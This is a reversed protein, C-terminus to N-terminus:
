AAPALGGRTLDVPIWAGDLLLLNFLHPAEEPDQSLGSGRECRLELGALRGVLCFADALGSDNARGYLLAGVASDNIEEGDDAYAVSRRLAALIRQATERPDACRCDAAMERAAALTERLEPSLEEETGADLARLIETGTYWSRVLVVVSGAARNVALDADRIGARAMLAYLPELCARDGAYAGPAGALEEYLEPSCFLDIEEAGEAARAALFTEAAELDSLSAAEPQFRTETYTTSRYFVINDQHSVNSTVIGGYSEAAHVYALPTDMMLERLTEGVLFVRFDPQKLIGMRSATIKMAYDSRCVMVPLETYSVRYYRVLGPLAGEATFYRDLLSSAHYLNLLEGDEDAAIQRALAPSFVITFDEAGQLAFAEVAADFQALDDVPAYPGDLPVPDRALIVGSTYYTLTLSSMGAQAACVKLDGSDALSRAQAPSCILAFEENGEELLRRVARCAEKETACQAWPRDSYQIESLRILCSSESFLVRAWSIGGMIELVSLRAANDAMLSQFLTKECTFEFEGAQAAKQLAFLDLVERETKLAGDASAAPLLALLLVAALLLSLLRKKM